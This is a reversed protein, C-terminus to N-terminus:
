EGPLTSAWATTLEKIRALININPGTMEGALLLNVLNLADGARM